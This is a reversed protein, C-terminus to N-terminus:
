SATGAVDILIKMGQGAALRDLAMGTDDLSMADTVLEAAPIVGGAILTVAREFDSRRYVRAGRIELEKWFVQQLDVARPSAHIAVIVVRGRVKAVATATRATAEVGAVEFVVDVGRGATRDKVLEPVDTTAPNATAFGLDAALARRRDDVEIM